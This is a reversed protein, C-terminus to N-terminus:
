ERGQSKDVLVVFFVDFPSAGTAATGEGRLKKWAAVRESDGDDCPFPNPETASTQCDASCVEKCTLICGAACVLPLHGQFCPTCM